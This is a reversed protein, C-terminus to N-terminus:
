ASHRAGTFRGCTPCKGTVKTQQQLAAHTQERKVVEAAIPIVSEKTPHEADKTCLRVSKQIRKGKVGIFFRAHWAGSSEFIHGHGTKLPM